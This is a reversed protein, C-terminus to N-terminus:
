GFYDAFVCSLERIVDAAVEHDSLQELNQFPVYSDISGSGTERTTEFCGGIMAASQVWPVDKEDSSSPCEFCYGRFRGRKSFATCQNSGEYLFAMDFGVEVIASLESDLGSPVKM